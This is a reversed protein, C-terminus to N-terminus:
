VNINTHPLAELSAACSMVPLKTLMSYPCRQDKPDNSRAIAGMHNGERMCAHSRTSPPRAIWVYRLQSVCVCVLANGAELAVQQAQVWTQTYRQGPVQARAQKCLSQGRLAM